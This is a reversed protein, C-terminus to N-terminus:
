LQKPCIGGGGPRILTLFQNEDIELVLTPPLRKISDCTYLQDFNILIERGSCLYLPTTRHKQCTKLNDMSLLALAKLRNSCLLRQVTKKSLVEIQHLRNMDTLDLNSLKYATLKNSFDTLPLNLFSHVINTKPDVATRASEFNFILNLEDNSFFLSSHIKKM